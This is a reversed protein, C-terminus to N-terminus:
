SVLPPTVVMAAALLAYVATGLRVVRVRRREPWGTFSTLWALAPLILIGHLTAAHGLKLFGGVAYATQQQGAVVERVGRAIMVAGILLSADLALFGARVAPRMQPPVGPAPRFSAVTLAVAVVIIVGGGAALVRSVVTDFATEQNFHSPVGRWAQMTVLATELVCAATFAGLLVARERAGLRVFSTVWVVTVLTLGFSLGFTVAKRWSVPGEWAGGDVLFVGVHFVGSAMLAVGVRYAARELSGAGDWFVRLEKLM